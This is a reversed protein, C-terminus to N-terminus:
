RPRSQSSEGACARRDSASGNWRACSKMAQARDAPHLALMQRLLGSLARDRFDHPAIEARRVLLLLDSMSEVNAYARHGPVLMEYLLIGLSYVDSTESIPLGRAQEPSMYHLTGVLSGASTHTPDTTTMVRGLVATKEVDDSDFDIQTAERMPAGTVEDTARALGFDLVKVVGDATIMVNDPKLDRHVIGRAHTAALVRAVQLAVDVAESKSVGNEMRTRLTTGEVLELVLYDGDERELVDYLRCINPHDLRSLVRAERLFRARMEANLRKDAHVVKLAVARELKEDWGRYVEGMGGSGLLAEVRIRGIRMGPELPM